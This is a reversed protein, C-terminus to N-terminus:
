DVERHEHTFQELTTLLQRNRENLEHDFTSTGQGVKKEELKRKRGVARQVTSTAVGLLEHAIWRAKHSGPIGDWDWGRGLYKGKDKVVMRHLNKQVLSIAETM